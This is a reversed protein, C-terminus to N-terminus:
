RKRRRSLIEAINNQEALEGRAAVIELVIGVKFHPSKPSAKM